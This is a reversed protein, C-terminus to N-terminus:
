ASLADQMISLYRFLKSTSLFYLMREREFPPFTYKQKESDLFSLGHRM